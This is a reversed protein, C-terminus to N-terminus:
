LARAAALDPRWFGPWGATAGGASARQGGLARLLAVRSNFDGPRVPLGRFAERELDQAPLRVGEAVGAPDRLLLSKLVDDVSEVPVRLAIPEDPALAGAHEVLALGANSLTVARVPLEAAMAPAAFCLAFALALRM